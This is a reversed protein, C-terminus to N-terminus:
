HSKREDTREKQGLILCGFMEMECLVTRLRCVEVADAGEVRELALYNDAMSELVTLPATTNNRRNKVVQPETADM